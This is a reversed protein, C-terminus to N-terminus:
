FKFQIKIQTYEEFDFLVKWNIYKIIFSNSLNFVEHRFHWIILVSKFDLCYEELAVSSLTCCICRHAWIELQHSNKYAKLLSKFKSFRVGNPFTVCIFQNGQWFSAIIEWFSARKPLNRCVSSESFVPSGLQALSKLLFSSGFGLWVSGLSPYM